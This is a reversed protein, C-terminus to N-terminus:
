LTVKKGCKRKFEGDRALLSKESQLKERYRETIRKLEEHQKSSCYSKILNLINHINNPEIKDSKKLTLIAQEYDHLRYLAYGKYRLARTNDPEADLVKNYETIATSFDNKLAYSRGRDLIIKIDLRNKEQVINPTEQTNNIVPPPKIRSDKTSIAVKDNNPTKNFLANLAFGAAVVVLTAVIGWVFMPIATKGETPTIAKSTATNTPKPVEDPTSITRPPVATHTPKPTEDSTQITRPVTKEEVNIVDTLWQSVSQSPKNEKLIVAYDITSIFPMVGYATNNAKFALKYHTLAKVENLFDKVGQQYNQSYSPRTPYIVHSTPDPTRYAFANPMYEKIICKENLQTDEALYTTGFDTVSLLNIIIYKDIKHDNPLVNDYESKKVM